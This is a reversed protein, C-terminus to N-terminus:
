RIIVDCTLNTLRARALSPGQLAQTYIPVGVLDPQTPIPIVISGVGAPQPVVIPPLPLLLTPDLRLTGLPPLPTSATRTSLYPLAVEVAGHRAHAELTFTHGIRLLLPSDLQRILNLYLQNRGSNGFVQDVDGDDDVDGLAVAWTPDAHAPMRAATVDTYTGQGDNRYLRNQQRARFSHSGNGFVVDLDGDGDLDDLAVAATGDSDAPMRAATVDTYTGTGDNRYLRNQQGGRWDGNGFLADLDGDGDVDGLGVARTVDSDAPLRQATTDAFTGTGDNLYLRNQGDNGFVLDLDGDGDVDGFAATKTEDSDVPLQRATADTFTGTGDNLYLRNQPQFVPSGGNGFVLDLDGDGDVDGLGVASGAQAPLRAATADIFRGRGDNRYLRNREATGFVVDLDGDGDVDGSAVALSSDSGIPMRTATVDTFTGTGDNLHLRSQEGSSAFVVDLDGDGDVDCFSLGSGGGGPMRRTTVDTFHGGGDNRYLRFGCIVDLDGDGDVDGLGVALTHDNDFPLRQTADTFTGTGDNLYLRNQGDTRYHGEPGNGCVMDLDGDGDVDGLGVAHTHYLHPPLAAATADTFTGTGDNLYLRNQQGFAYALGFDGNGFVMDLDGDGDVDGFCVAQSSDIDAPMRTATVDTFHGNGDNLHLRNQGGQPFGNACVMDLDGDGDVDGLAVASTYDIVAPMRSATVDAYIGTGDNLYLRNQEGYGRLAGPRSNGAVLDLDGDGDVDGLAVALTVDRDAPLARKALEDFQRQAPAAVVLTALVAATILVETRPRSLSVPLTPRVRMAARRPIAPRPIRHSRIERGRFPQHGQKLGSEAGVQCAVALIEPQPRDPRPPIPVSVGCSPNRAPWSWRMRGHGRALDFVLEERRVDLVHVPVPHARQALVLGLEGAVLGRDPAFPVREVSRDARPDRGFGPDITHVHQLSRLFLGAGVLLVLSVAVQAVVLANRLTFHGSRGVGASEDKITASMDSRTSQLAPLLGLFLGALLSVVLNFGLVTADPELDLTVPLPLPLDAAVLVRLLTTSVVVGAVGGLLALLSTETVLQGALRMRTAGLALRLAIEKKRDIARALLFSALNVCSMLLVLGVVGSVIWAAAHIFRDAPPYLVVDETPVLHFSAQLDWDEVREETLRTAVAEAATRAQVLGVGDVLRAQVFVSHNGRLELESTGGPQIVDVM